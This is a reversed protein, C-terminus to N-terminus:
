KAPVPVPTRQMDPALERDVITAGFAAALCVAAAVAPLALPAAGLLVGGVSPGILFGAQWAFGMVGLYRGRLRDPAMATATPLMVATYLCEGLAYMSAAVGIVLAAPPGALWTGAALIVTWSAVWTLAGASLMQMRRRGQVFHTLPLQAVVITLTNAAYIVGIFAEGVHAQGKAFAPLLGLMPAIGGAVLATNVAVLRMFPRDRLVARYGGGPLARQTVRGSPLLLSIAAFTVFTIADLVLLRIYGDLGGAAIFGGVMGGAGLGVIATVRNQAFAAARRDPTVMSATLNQSSPGYAGTGVGVLLGVTYAQWPATVQTYTLYAAANCVMALVLINRSGLRDALSGAVLGSTVATVGGLAVASGAFGLPIHRGYHLYIVLFPAVLGNGFFNVLVGAQLLWVKGPLNPNFLRMAALVTIPLM